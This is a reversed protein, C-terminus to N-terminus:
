DFLATIRWPVGRITSIADNAMLVRDKGNYNFVRLAPDPESFIAGSGTSGSVSGGNTYMYQVSQGQAERGFDAWDPTADAEKEWEYGVGWFQSALAEATYCSGVHQNQWIHTCEHAVYEPKALATYAKLYIMNGLVFPRPNISFLGGFGDVARVNYTAISGNFVRKIIDIEDQNLKRPWGITIIVQILALAKGGVAIVAGVIGAAIDGLGGLIGRWDLTFIGGVIRIAASALGGAIAGAGKVIAALIDFMSTLVAGLWKFVVGVYRIKNGLWTLGDGILHGLAEVLDAAGDAIKNVIGSVARAVTRIGKRISDLVSM